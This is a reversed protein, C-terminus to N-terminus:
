SRPTFTIKFSNRPLFTSRWTYRAKADPEPLSIDYNSIVQALLVKLAMTAYYRGPCAMRGTGWFQWESSVETLESPKAQSSTSDKMLTAKELVEPSAFRFGNFTFPDPYKNPDHNIAHVPTCAWDGVDLTIGDSFKFPQIAQRRTSMSEVPHQRASEKLFSDLLPLGKGTLEFEDYQSELEARLYKVYEPHRGLDQIAFTSTVVLSYCAGFWIALLEWVIREPSWPSQRPSTDMIWQIADTHKPVKHGLIRMDREQCRKEVVALLMQHMVKNSQFYSSTIRGVLPVAFAPILRLIEAVALTQEMFTSAANMFEVNNCTEEGFLVYANTIAVLQNMLSAVKTEPVGKVTTHKIRLQDFRVKVLRSLDPLVGPMYSTLLTRLAREFGVGETGRIDFWCFGHMTYKPQLMHRAAAQLSLVTDPAQDLEEIHKPSSVFVYRTDPTPVEYPQGKAQTLSDTM